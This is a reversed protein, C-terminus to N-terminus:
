IYTNLHFDQQEGSKRLFDHNSNYSSVLKGSKLKYSSVIRVVKEPSFFTLITLELLIEEKKSTM